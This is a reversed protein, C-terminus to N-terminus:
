DLAAWARWAETVPDLYEPADPPGGGGSGGGNGGGGGSGGGSGGGEDHHEGNGGNQNFQRQWEAKSNWGYQSAGDPTRWNCGHEGPAPYYPRKHPGACETM